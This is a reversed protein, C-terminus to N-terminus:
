KLRMPLGATVFTVQEVRKAVDQHLRGLEDVFERSLKGMPVVGLGVENSVMILKLNTQELFDLLAQVQQKRCDAEIINLM